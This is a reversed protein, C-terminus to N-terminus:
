DRVTPLFQCLVASKNKSSFKGEVVSKLYEGRSSRLFVLIKLGSQKQFGGLNGSCLSFLRAPSLSVSLLFM